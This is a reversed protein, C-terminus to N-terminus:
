CHGNARVVVRKLLRSRQLSDNAHFLCNMKRGHDRKRRDDLLPLKDDEVDTVENCRMENDREVPYIRLTVLGADRSCNPKSLQKRRPHVRGVGTHIEGPWAASVCSALVDHVQNSNECTPDVRKM